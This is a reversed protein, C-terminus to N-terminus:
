KWRGRTLITWVSVCLAVAAGVGVPFTGGEDHGRDNRHLVVQASGTELVAAVNDEFIIPLGLLGAYFSKAAILDSVFLFISKLEEIHM